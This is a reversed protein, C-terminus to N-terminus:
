QSSSKASIARYPHGTFFMGNQNIDNEDATTRRGVKGTDNMDDCNQGGKEPDLQTQLDELQVKYGAQLEYALPCVICSLIYHRIPGEAVLENCPFNPPPELKLCARIAKRLGSSLRKTCGHRDQKELDNLLELADKVDRGCQRWTEKEPTKKFKAGTVIELFIIGLALIAPHLHSQWHMDHPSTKSTGGGQQLQVSFYPYTLIPSISNNTGRVFYVMNSNWETQFWSSPYLYLMSSALIYCLILQDRPNCNSIFSVGTGDGLLQRLTEMSTYHNIGEIVKPKLHWFTENEIQFDVQLVEDSALLYQCIDDNVPMRSITAAM